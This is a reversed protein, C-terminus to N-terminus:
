EGSFLSETAVASDLANQVEPPIEVDRLNAHDEKPEDGILIDILNYIAPENAKAREHEWKHYERIIVYVNYKRLVARGM